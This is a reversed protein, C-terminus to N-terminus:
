LLMMTCWEDKCGLEMLIVVLKMYIAMVHFCSPMWLVMFYMCTADDISCSQAVTVSLMYPSNQSFPDRNILYALPCVYLFVFMCISLYVNSNCNPAFYHSGFV